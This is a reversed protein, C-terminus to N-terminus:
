ISFRDVIKTVARPFLSAGSRTTELRWPPIELYSGLFHFNEVSGHFLVESSHFSVESSHFSLESLNKSEESSFLCDRGLCKANGGHPAWLTGVFSALM